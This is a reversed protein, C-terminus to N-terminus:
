CAPLTRVQDRTANRRDKCPFKEPSARCRSNAGSVRERGHFIRRTGSTAPAGSGAGSGQGSLQLITRYRVPERDPVGSAVRVWSRGARNKGVRRQLMVGNRHELDVMASPVFDGAGSSVSSASLPAPDTRDKLRASRTKSCLRHEHNRRERGEELLNGCGRSESNERSGRQAEGTPM